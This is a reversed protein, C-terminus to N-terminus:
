DASGDQQDQPKSLPHQLVVVSRGEVRVMDTLTLDDTNEKLMNKSTDIVLKWNTGYNEPPLKYDVPIDSPNFMIYFSDDKIKEGKKGGHVYGKEM